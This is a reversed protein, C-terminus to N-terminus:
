SSSGRVPALPASGRRACGGACTIKVLTSRRVMIATGRAATRRHPANCRRVRVAPAAARARRRGWAVHVVALHAPILIVPDHVLQAIIRVRLFFPSPAARTCSTAGGLRRTCGGRQGM